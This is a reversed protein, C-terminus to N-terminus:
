GCWKYVVLAFTLYSAQVIGMSVYVAKNYDKPNTMESIVPLFASTGASSVFITCTAAMGVIFTPYAIANYGLDFDGTQPAAAPRDRTTVGVVVIFV